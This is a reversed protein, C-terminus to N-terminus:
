NCATGFVSLFLLLDTTDVMDDDTLDVTCSSQCGFGSLLQLLDNTDIVMDGNFDGLCGAATTEIVQIKFSAEQTGVGDLRVRYNSGPNLGSLELTEATEDGYNDVCAIENLSECNGSFATLRMNFIPTLMNVESTVIEVSGTAPATFGYWVTRGTSVSCSSIPGNAQSACENSGFSPDENVQLLIFDACEDHPVECVQAEFCGMDVTSLYIRQNGALDTLLNSASNLGSNYAQSNASIKFNGASPDLFNPNCDFISTGTAGGEIICHSPIINGAGFQVNYTSFNNWVICNTFEGGAGDITLSTGSGSTAINETFTCNIIESTAQNLVRLAANTNSTNQYFLCNEVVSTGSYIDMAGTITGGTNNEFISNSIEATAGIITLTSGLSTATNDSFVCESITGASGTNLILAAGSTAAVNGQFLTNTFDFLGNTSVAGGSGGSTNNIFSSNSVHLDSGASALVVATAGATIDEFICNDAYIESGSQFFFAGAFNAYHGTFTCNALNVQTSVVRMAASNNNSGSGDAYGDSIILGDLIIVGAAALDILRYSNDTSAATGINGSMVTPNASWDRQSHLIENGQFGGYLACDDPIDFTISRDNTSTPFYTGEAVWIENGPSFVALADQLDVFADQWSSGDNAGTADQDVYLTNSSYYEFCGVDATGNWIRQEHALDLNLSSYANSGYDIAPSTPLLSFDGAAVDAFLPSQMLTDGIVNIASSQYVDLIVKDATIPTSGFAKHDDNDWIISNYVEASGFSTGGIVSGYSQEFINQSFTSNFISAIANTGVYVISGGDNNNQRVLCNDMSLHSNPGVFVAAQTNATCFRIDCHRIDLETATNMYIAGSLNNNDNVDRYAYRFEFGDVLTNTGQVVLIRYSNDTIDGIVGIAGSLITKNENWDRQGRFSENGIFGGYLSVGSGLQFNINRDTSTTPKYVGQAVWIQDGSNSFSLADQLDVFANNWSSGDNEGTATLDVYLRRDTQMEYCGADIVTNWVRPQGALDLNENFLGNQGFDQAPSGSTLQYNNSGPDEFLPDQDLVDGITYNLSNQIIDLVCNDIEGSPSGFPNHMDNDWIIDNYAIFLSTSHGGIVSGFTQEFKNQSLTCNYIKAVANVNLDIIGSIDTTNDHVLCNVMILYTDTLGGVAPGALALNNYITCNVLDMSAGDDMYVGGRPYFVDTFERYAKKIGFGDVVINSGHAFIVNYSNDAATSQSGIAGSLETVNTAWDRQDRQTETGDFGGYLEIGSNIDFRIDRDTTTTPKYIGEAVWIEDNAGAVALADQLDTFANNWSAGSNTGTADKDVYIVAAQSSFTLTCALVWLLLNRTNM